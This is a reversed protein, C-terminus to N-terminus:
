CVPLLFAVAILCWEASKQFFNREEGEPAEYSDGRMFNINFMGRMIFCRSPKVIQCHTYTPSIIFASISFLCRVILCAALIIPTVLSVRRLQSPAPLNLATRWGM